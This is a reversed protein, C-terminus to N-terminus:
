LTRRRDPWVSAILAVVLAGAALVLGPGAREGKELDAAALAVITLGLFPALALAPQPRLAALLGVVAALVALGGSVWVISFWGDVGLDSWRLFLSVALLLAAVVLVGARVGLRGGTRVDRRRLVAGGAAAIVAAAAVLPGASPTWAESSPEGRGLRAAVWELGTQRQEGLGATVKDIAGFLILTDPQRWPALLGVVILGLAAALCALGFDAGSPSRDM